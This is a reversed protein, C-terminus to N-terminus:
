ASPAPAGIRSALQFLDIGEKRVRLDFYLLVIAILLVPVVLGNLLIAAAEYISLAIYQSVFISLLGQGAYLFAGLALSVAYDLIAVLFLIFFTRWWMGQVLSWSRRMAGGLGLNEIFMAPLVAVWGVLIWIWLPFLCFVIAMLAILVIFGLVHLYKRLAARLMGGLTVPHGLASECIVFTIAGYQLPQLALNLLYGVGLGVFLGGLQSPDFPAGTTAQTLLKAYLSWFGFGALAALPIAFAVSVGALLFFHRRYLRFIEDLVDGIELPRLRLPIPASV